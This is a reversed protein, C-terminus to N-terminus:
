VVLEGCQQMIIAAPGKVEFDLTGAGNEPAFEM